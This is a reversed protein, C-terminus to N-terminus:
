IAGIQKLTAKAIAAPDFGAEDSSAHNTVANVEAADQATKALHESGKRKMAQVIQYSLREGTMEPNARAQAALDEYGNITAEAIGDLREREKTRGLDFAAQYVAPHKEKLEALDLPKEKAAEPKPSPLRPPISASVTKSFASEPFTVGGFTLSNKSHYAEITASDISTAFGNSLAEQATFWTESDMWEKISERSAGTRAEYIDAMSVNFADLTDALRRLDGSGGYANMHANHIMMLSGHPMRIEDGAMAIVSAASAALGDVTVIVKAPHNKLANYIAVGDSASGGASNLQVHITDADSESLQRAIEGSSVDNWFSQGIYGYMVFRLERPRAEAKVIQLRKSM